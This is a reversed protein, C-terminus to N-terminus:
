PREKGLAVAITKSIAEPTLGCLSRLHDQSGAEHFFIDPTGIRILRGQGQPQDSLWEAVAGGLGGIRSHEEITVVLKYKAFVEKLCAEDMPKVSPFSDLRVSIGKATLLDAAACSVPLINGTSLIAVETGARLPITKGLKLVPQTAHIVPEGKKGLRIYSPGDHAVAATLAARVEMADGPCIVSMGPLLRLFGIDECSHHTSGLSAYSLGGGVGAIILPQHHYCADVRIQELVRTTIFPVITYLIPRLGTMALGAAMSVMNAEAVGCNFFRGPFAAQFKNFMRNGIDASLVVIRPDSKGLTQLENVFADRM